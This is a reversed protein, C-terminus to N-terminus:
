VFISNDHMLPGLFMLPAEGYGRGLIMDGSFVGGEGMCTLESQCLLVNIVNPM